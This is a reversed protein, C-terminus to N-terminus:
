CDVLQHFSVWDGNPLNLLNQQMMSHYFLPFGSVFGENRLFYSELHVSSIALLIEPVLLSVFILNTDFYLKRHLSYAPTSLELCRLHSKIGLKIHHTV